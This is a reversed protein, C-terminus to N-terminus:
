PDHSFKKVENFMYLKDSLRDKYMEKRYPKARNLKEIFETDLTPANKQILKLAEEPNLKEFFELFTDEKEKSSDGTGMSNKINLGSGKSNRMTQCKKM